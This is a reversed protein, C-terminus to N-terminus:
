AREDVEPDGLLVVVPVIRVPVGGLLAELLAVALTRVDAPQSRPAAAVVVVVPGARTRSM